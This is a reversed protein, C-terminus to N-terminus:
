LKLVVLLDITNMINFDISLLFFATDLVSRLQEYLYTRVSPLKNVSM